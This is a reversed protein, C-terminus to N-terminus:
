KKRFSRLNHGKNKGKMKQLTKKLDPPLVSLDIDCSCPTCVFSGDPFVASESCPVFRGYQPLQFEGGLAVNLLNHKLTISCQGSAFREMMNLAKKISNVEHRYSDKVAQACELFRNPIDTACRPPHTLRMRRTGNEEELSVTYLDSPQLQSGKAFAAPLVGFLRTTPTSRFALAGSKLSENMVGDFTYHKLDGSTAFHLIKPPGQEPCRNVPVTKHNLLEENWGKDKKQTAKVARLIDQSLFQKDCLIRFYTGGADPMPHAVLMVMPEVSTSPLCEERYAIGYVPVSDSNGPLLITGKVEIFEKESSAPVKIFESPPYEALVKRRAEDARLRENEEVEHKAKAARDKQSQSSFALWAEVERWFDSSHAHRDRMQIIREPIVLQDNLAPADASGSDDSGAVRPPGDM